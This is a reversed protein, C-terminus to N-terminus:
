ECSAGKRERERKKKEREKKRERMGKLENSSLREIKVLHPLAAGKLRRGSDFSDLKSVFLFKHRQYKKLSNNQSIIEQWSRPLQTARPSRSLNLGIKTRRFKKSRKLVVSSLEEWFVQQTTRSHSSFKFIIENTYNKLLSQTRQLEIQKLIFWNQWRCFCYNEIGLVVIKTIQM